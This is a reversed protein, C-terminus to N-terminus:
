LARAGTPVFEHREAFTRTDPTFASAVLALGLFVGVIAVLMWLMVPHRARACAGRPCPDLDPFHLNM